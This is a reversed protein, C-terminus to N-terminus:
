YKFEDEDEEEDENFLDDDDDLDLDEDPIEEPETDPNFDEDEKKPTEKEASYLSESSSYYSDRSSYNDDMRDMVQGIMEDTIDDKMEPVDVKKGEDIKEDAAPTAKWLDTLSKKDLKALLTDIEKTITKIHKQDWEGEDALQKKMFDWFSGNKKGPEPLKKLSTIIETVAKRMTISM